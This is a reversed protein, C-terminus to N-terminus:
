PGSQCRAVPNGVPLALAAAFHCALSCLLKLCHHAEVARLPFCNSLPSTGGNSASRWWALLAAATFFFTRASFCQPAASLATASVSLAGPVLSAQGFVPLCILIKMMVMILEQLTSRLAPTPHMTLSPIIIVAPAVETTTANHQDIVIM